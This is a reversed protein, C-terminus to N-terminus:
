YLIEKILKKIVFQNVLISEFDRQWNASYGGM